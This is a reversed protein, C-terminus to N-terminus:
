PPDQVHNAYHLMKGCFQLANQYVDLLFLINLTVKHKKFPSKM